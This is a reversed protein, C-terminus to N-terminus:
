RIFSAYNETLEEGVQIDVLAVSCGYNDEFTNPNNSHNVYRADDFCLCRRGSKDSKFAYKKWFARSPAGMARIQAGTRVQDGAAPSYRWWVTGAPILEAAFLGVGAISSKSVYTKVLLM